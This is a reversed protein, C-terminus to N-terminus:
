VNRNEALIILSSNQKTSCLLCLQNITQPEQLALEIKISEPM